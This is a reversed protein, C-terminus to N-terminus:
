FSLVPMVVAVPFEECVVVVVLVLELRCRRSTGARLFCVVSWAHLGDAPFQPPDGQM